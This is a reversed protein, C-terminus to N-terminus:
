GDQPNAGELADNLQPDEVTGGRVNPDAERDIESLRERIEEERQDLEDLSEQLAEKKDSNLFSFVGPGPMEEEIEERREKIEWLMGKLELERDRISRGASGGAESPAPMQQKRGRNMGEEKAQEREEDSLDQHAFQLHGSLGRGDKFVDGCIPCEPNKVAM